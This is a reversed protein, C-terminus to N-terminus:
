IYILDYKKAGFKINIFNNKILKRINFFYIGGQNNAM